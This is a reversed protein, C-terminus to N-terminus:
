KDNTMQSQPRSREMTLPGLNERGAFRLGRVASKVKPRPGEGEASLVKCGEERLM